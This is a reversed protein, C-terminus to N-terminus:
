MGAARKELVLSSLLFSCFRKSIYNQLSRYRVINYLMNFVEKRITYWMRLQNRVSKNSEPPFEKRTFRSPSRFSKYAVLCWLSIKQSAGLCLDMLCHSDSNMFWLTQGSSPVVCFHDMNRTVSNGRSLISLLQQYDKVMWWAFLEIFHTCKAYITLISFSIEVRKM